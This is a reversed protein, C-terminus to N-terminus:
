ESIRRGSIGLDNGAFGEWTSLFTGTGNGAVWSQTNAGLSQQNVQFAAGTAGTVRDVSSAVIGTPFTDGYGLWSVLFSAAGVAVSPAVEYQDAGKSVAIQSGILNGNAGLQQGYVRAHRVDPVQSQWVVLYNGAVDAAVAPRRQDRETATNVQVLSGIPALAATYPQAFVGRGNGDSGDFAVLFKGRAGAIAPSGSRTGAPSVRIEPSTANGSFDFTRIFVGDPAGNTPFVPNRSTSWAVVV